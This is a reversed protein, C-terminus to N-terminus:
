ADYHVGPHSRFLWGDSGARAGGLLVRDPGFVHRRDLQTNAKTSPPTASRACGKWTAAWRASMAGPSKTRCGISTSQALRVLRALAADIERKRVVFAALAQSNDRIKSM